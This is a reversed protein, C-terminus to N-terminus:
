TASSKSTLKTKQYNDLKRERKPSSSSSAPRTERRDSSRPVQAKIVGTTEKKKKAHSIKKLTPV